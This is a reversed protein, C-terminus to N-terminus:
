NRFNPRPNQVDGKDPMKRLDKVVEGARLAILAGGCKPCFCEVIDFWYNPVLIAWEHKQVCMGNIIIYM